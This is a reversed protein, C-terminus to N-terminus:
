LVEQRSSNKHKTLRVSLEETLYVMTSQTEIAASKNQTFYFIM